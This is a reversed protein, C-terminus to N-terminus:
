SSAPVLEARRYRFALADGDLSLIDGGGHRGRGVGGGSSGRRRLRGREHLTRRRGNGPHRGYELGSLGRAVGGAALRGFRVAAGARVECGSERERWALHAFGRGLKVVIGPIGGDRRPLNSGGGLLTVRVAHAGATRLVAGLECTHRSSSCNAPGGIRLSTHRALPEDTPGIVSCPALATVLAEPIAMSTSPVTAGARLLELLEDAQPLHRRRSHSCSIAPAAIDLLAQAVRDRSAVYRVDLHGRRRLAHFLAESSVSDLRAEGAAYIDTLLVVDADDFAELFDGLSGAHAHLPPAPVRRGATAHVGRARRAAHRSRKPIIATTTSWSCGV